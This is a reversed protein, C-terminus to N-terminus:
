GGDDEVSKLLDALVKSSGEKQGPARQFAQLLSIREGLIACWSRLEMEPATKYVSLLKQLASEADKGLETIIMKGGESNAVAELLAYREVDKQVAEIEEPTGKTSM